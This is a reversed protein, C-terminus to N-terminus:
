AAVRPSDPSEFEELWEFVRPWVETAAVASAIIGGHDLDAGFGQAEGCAMFRVTAEPLAERLLTRCSSPPAWLSDGDGAVALLPLRLSRLAAAIAPAEDDGWRGTLNWRMWDAMLGGPEDQTGLGLARAPFRGLARSLMLAVFGALRRRGRMSPNPVGFLIAGRVQICDLAISSLAAAGGASHAVVFDVRRGGLWAEVAAPLDHRAWDMFRWESMGDLQHGRRGRPEVVAVRYGLAALARGLGVGRTGLYTTRDSFFGPVCLLTPGRADPGVFISTTVGDDARVINETWDHAETHLLSPSMMSNSTSM